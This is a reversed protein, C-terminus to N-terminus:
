GIVELSTELLQTSIHDYTFRLNEDDFLLPEIHTHSQHHACVNLRRWDVPSIATGAFHAAYLRGSRRVIRSM